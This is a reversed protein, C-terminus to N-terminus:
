IPNHSASCRKQIMCIFKLQKIAEEIAVREEYTEINDFDINSIYRELEEEYM